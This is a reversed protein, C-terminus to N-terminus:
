NRGGRVGKGHLRTRPVEVHSQEGPQNPGRERSGQKEVGLRALDRRKQEMNRKQEEMRDAQKKVWGLLAEEVPESGTEWPGEGAERVAAILNTTAGTLRGLRDRLEEIAELRNPPLM